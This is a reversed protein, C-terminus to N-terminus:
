HSGAEDNNSCYKLVSDYANSFADNCYENSIKISMTGDNIGGYDELEFTTYGNKTSIGIKGNSSSFVMSGSTNSVFANYFKEWMKKGVNEQSYTINIEMGHANISFQFVPMHNENYVTDDDSDMDDDIDDDIHIEEFTVNM